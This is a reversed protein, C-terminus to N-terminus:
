AAPVVGRRTSSSESIRGFPELRHCAPDTSALAPAALAVSGTVYNEYWDAYADYVATGKV